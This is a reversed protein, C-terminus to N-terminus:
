KIDTNAVATGANEILYIVLSKKCVLAGLPLSSTDANEQLKRIHANTIWDPVDCPKKEEPKDVSVSGYYQDCESNSFQNYADGITSKGIIVGQSKGYCGPCLQNIQTILAQVEANVVPDTNPPLQINNLKIIPNYTLDPPMVTNATAWTGTTTNPAWASIPETTWDRATEFVVLGNNRRQINDVTGPFQVGGFSTSNTPGGAGLTDAAHLSLHTLSLIFIILLNLNHPMM